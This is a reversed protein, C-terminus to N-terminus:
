PQPGVQNLLTNRHYQGRYRSRTGEVSLTGMYSPGRSPATRDDPCHRVPASSHPENALRRELNAVRFQLDEIIGTKEIHVPEQSNYGNLETTSDVRVRKGGRSQRDRQLEPEDSARTQAPPDLYNQNYTCDISRQARECQQCPSERNCKLKKHRCPVCSLVPRPRQIKKEMQASSEERM